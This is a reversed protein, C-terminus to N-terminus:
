QRAVHHGQGPVAGSACAVFPVSAPPSLRPGQSEASARAEPRVPWQGCLQGSVVCSDVQCAGPAPSVAYPVRDGDCSAVSCRVWLCLRLRELDERRGERDRPLSPDTADEPSLALWPGWGLENLSRRVLVLVGAPTPQGPVLLPVPSDCQSGDPGALQACLPRTVWASVVSDVPM